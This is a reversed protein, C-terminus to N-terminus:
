GAGVEGGEFGGALGFVVRLGPVEGGEEGVDVGAEVLAEVLDVGGTQVLGFFLFLLSQHFQTL